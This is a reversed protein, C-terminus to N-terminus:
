RGALLEACAAAVADMPDQTSEDVIEAALAAAAQYLSEDWLLRQLMGPLEEPDGDAPLFLGTGLQQVRVSTMMQEMQMPLLLVPRGQALFGQTMGGGHGILASASERVLRANFPRSSIRVRESRLQSRQREPIGPAFVLYRGSSAAIAAMMKEFHGSGPKLYVFVKPGEGAPWDPVVGEDLYDIPGLYQEHIRHDYADLPRYGPILVRDAACLESVQRIAPAQLRQLVANVNRCVRQETDQLRQAEGENTNWFRYPPLPAVQPQTGFWQSLNLDPLGLGRAALVATPAQDYVLLDPRVFAWIHRWARAMALLGSPELYGFRFLTETFNLAPPLGQPPPPIWIPAQLYEIGESALLTEVRSLDRLILVPRHGDDRLRLSLPILRGIHGLDAGLEWNLAIVAM